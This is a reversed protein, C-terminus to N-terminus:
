DEKQNFKKLEDDEIILQDDRLTPLDARETTLDEETTETEAEQLLLTDERTEEWTGAAETEPHLQDPVLDAAETGVGWTLAIERSTAQRVAISAARMEQLTIEETLDAEAERM